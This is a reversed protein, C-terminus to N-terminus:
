GKRSQRQRRGSRSGDVAWGLDGAASDGFPADDVYLAYVWIAVAVGVEDDEVWGADGEGAQGRDVDGLVEARMREGAGAVQDADGAGNLSAGVSLPLDMSELKM